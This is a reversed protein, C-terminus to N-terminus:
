ILCSGFREMPSRYAPTMATCISSSVENTSKVMSPTYGGSSENYHALTMSLPPTTSRPPPQMFSALEDQNLPNFYNPTISSINEIVEEQQQKQEDILMSEPSDYGTHTRKNANFSLSTDNEEEEEMSNKRKKNTM